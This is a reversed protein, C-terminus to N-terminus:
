RLLCHQSQYTVTQLIKRTDVSNTFKDYSTADPFSIIGHIFISLGSPPLGQMKIELNLLVHASMYSGKYLNLLVHPSM